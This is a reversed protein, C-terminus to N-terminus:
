DMHGPCAGREASTGCEVKQELGRRGAPGM